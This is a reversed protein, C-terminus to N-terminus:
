KSVFSLSAMSKSPFSLKSIVTSSGSGFSVKCSSFNESTSFKGPLVISSIESKSSMKSSSSLLFSGLSSFASSSVSSTGNLIVM